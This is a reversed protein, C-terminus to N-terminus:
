RNFFLYFNGNVHRHIVDLRFDLDQLIGYSGIQWEKVATLTGNSNTLINYKIVRFNLVISSIVIDM